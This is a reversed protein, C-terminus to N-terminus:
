LKNKDKLLHKLRCLNHFNQQKKEQKRSCDTAKRYKLSNAPSQQKKRREAITKKLSL